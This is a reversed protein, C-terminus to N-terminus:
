EAAAPGAISGRGSVAGAVAEVDRIGPLLLFAATVVTGLLGAALLTERAGIAAAVPATFAYSLPILSLSVLWDISAVRGLLASPVLRHMLTMWVIQGLTSAAMVVFSTLMMQWAATALGFGVFALIGVTWGGYMFLVCRRPLPRQGMVLAAVIAGVGGAAYVLGLDTANGGLEDKLVFPVLVQFPGFFVLLTLAAAVLTGWLWTQTRVFRLGEAVEHVAVRVTSDPRPAAPRPQLLALALVGFAFTAADLLFASAPGVASVLLGGLAPGALRLALPRVFQDLANAEVL